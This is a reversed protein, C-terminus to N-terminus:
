LSQNVARYLVARFDILVMLFYAATYKIRKSPSFFNLVDAM